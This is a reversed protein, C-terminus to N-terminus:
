IKQDEKHLAIAVLQGSGPKLAWGLESILQTFPFLVVHSIKTFPILVFLLNGSLVHLLLATNYSLPNTQPHMALYGSAFIALILLLLLYDQPRSLARSAASTTRLVILLTTAGIAILTLTDALGAGISPWALGLGREWLMIHAGLFLPTIIIAVHFLISTLSFVGNPKFGKTVPFMYKLTARFIAACPLTRKERNSAYILKAVGLLSLLTIRLLGLLMVTLCAIFLPGRAWDLWQEM